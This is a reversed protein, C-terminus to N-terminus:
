PKMMEGNGDAHPCMSPMTQGSIQELRNFLAMWYVSPAETQHAQLTEARLACFLHFSWQIRRSRGSCYQEGAPLSGKHARQPTVKTRWGTQRIAPNVSTTGTAFLRALLTVTQECTLNGARWAAEGAWGGNRNGDGRAWTGSIAGMDGTNCLVSEDALALRRDAALSGKHAGRSRWKAFRWTDDTSTGRVDGLMMSRRRETQPQSLDTAMRRDTHPFVASAACGDRLVLNLENWSHGVAQPPRYPARRWNSVTGTMEGTGLM